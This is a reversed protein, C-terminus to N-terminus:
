ASFRGFLLRFPLALAELMMQGALASISVMETPQMQSSTEAVIAALHLGQALRHSQSPRWPEILRMLPPWCLVLAPLVPRSRPDRQLARALRIIPGPSRLPRGTIYRLMAAAEALLRRRAPWSEILRIAPDAPVVGLAALDGASAMPVAGALGLVRERDVNPFFPILRTLDCALLAFRIPVPILLLLKGKRSRRLTRLWAGFTVPSPGAVVMIPREKAGGSALRLLAQCVEDLHIPQVERGLGIMPLVPALDTLKAMLGYQGREAGGYVLGIRACCIRGASDSLALLRAEIAHKVRGYNNLAQARASTTSAFVIQPIGAALAARVLREAGALNINAQGAGGDRDGAWSHALHVLATAGALAEAPPEEGLRWPYAAVAMAQPRSGLVRIEYGARQALAVLREGIYGSGGTILLCPPM